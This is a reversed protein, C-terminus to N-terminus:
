LDGYRGIKIAGVIAPGRSDGRRYDDGREKATYHV